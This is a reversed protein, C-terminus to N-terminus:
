KDGKSKSPSPTQQQQQASPSGNEREQEDRMRRVATTLVYAVVNALSRQDREAWEALFEYVDEPITATIKPRRMLDLVSLAVQVIKDEKRM